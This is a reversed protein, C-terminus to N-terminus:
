PKLEIRRRGGILANPHARLFDALSSISQAATAVEELALALDHRLPADSALM